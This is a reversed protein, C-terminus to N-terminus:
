RIGWKLGVAPYFPATTKGVDIASSKEVGIVASIAMAKQKNNSSAIFLPISGLVSLGGAIFLVGGANAAGDNGDSMIDFNQDFMIAGTVAAAAGLGLMLFGTTKQNKSKILLDDRMKMKETNTQQAFLMPAFGLLM